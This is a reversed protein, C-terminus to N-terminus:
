LARPPAVLFNASYAIPVKDSIVISESGWISGQSWWFIPVIDSPVIVPIYQLLSLATLEVEEVFYSYVM